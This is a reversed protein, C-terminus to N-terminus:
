RRYRAEYFSRLEAPGGKKRCYGCGFEDSAPSIMLWHNTRPCNAMWDIGNHGAPRPKLGLKKAMKIIPAEHQQAEQAAESNRKLEDAITKIITELEGSTLLLSRYPPIPWEYHVQSRVHADLLRVAAERKSGDRPLNRVCKRSIVESSNTVVEELWDVDSTRILYFLKQVTDIGVDCDWGGIVGLFEVDEPLFEPDRDRNKVSM